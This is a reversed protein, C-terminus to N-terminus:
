GAVQFTLTETFIRGYVDTATVTATHEGAALDNPVELRWLHMMRDALSGGNVLQEQVAVPDSYEAGVLQGEGQMQQTRVAEVTEGGDLQVKVTSGTSGMWFNTTLWTSNALDDRSVTLPDAFAPASGKKALNQAYWDRYRPTNLGLSMQLSEDEGRVTFREQFETNKIDLTLVGPLGGDRQYALPYGEATQRGSYWDGSIAGATIHTFPLADIGFLESWGALSDGERLNEISHTHGGLAVVERGELIKYVEKVQEVQHKSSGQDAYDLLPIHAALVILQNKPVQAIDNRLWELQQEDLSGTYDGKAAPLKTPFEVTNLAVVHAKGADYSYYEPGLQAKFTDFTHESSTADFDLDHNGPLFRAPGNLMGSLERTQPYLSLDDGVVDGIFLAGCGAYDTRAALDAFAGTRAYEVEDQDYTQVDGGIVCHQEPSQTLGSKALPFNVQDPLPGTPEIGGFKLEPSGAPLHHYFFQAVNDADVPVQYGRPQTVSVTMNDFAPLEYRGQSDTKTVDRGNSLTVGTLGRENGDQVSDQDADVFAVGDIVQQNEDPGAVVNVSGRYASDAWDSPEAANGTSANLLSAAAIVALTGATLALPRAPHLKSPRAILYM